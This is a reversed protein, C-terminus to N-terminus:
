AILHIADTKLTSQNIHLHAPLYGWQCPLMSFVPPMSVWDVRFSIPQRVTHTVFHLCRARPLWCHRRIQRGWFLQQLSINIGNTWRFATSLVQKLHQPSAHSFSGGRSTATLTSAGGLSHSILSTDRSGLSPFSASNTAQAESHIPSPPIIYRSSPMEELKEQAPAKENCSVVCQPEQHYRSPIKQGWLDKRRKHGSTVSDRQAQFGFTAQQTSTHLLAGPSQRSYTPNQLILSPKLMNTFETNNGNGEDM